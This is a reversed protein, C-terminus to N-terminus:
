VRWKKALTFAAGLSLAANVVIMISVINNISSTKELLTMPDRELYLTWRPTPAWDYVRLIKGNKIVIQDKTKVISPDVDSGIKTKDPHLIYKGKEDFAYLNGGSEPSQLEQSLKELDPTLIIAGAFTNGNFVPISLVVSPVNLITIFLNSVYPRLSTEVVQFYDRTRLNTSELISNQPYTGLVEGATDMFFVRRVQGSKEYIVKSALIASEENGALIIGPFDLRKTESDVLAEGETFITDVHHTIESLSDQMREAASLKLKDQYSQIAILGFVVALAVWFFSLAVIHFEKRELNVQNSNWWLLFCIFIGYIFAGFALDWIGRTTAGSAVFFALIANLAFIWNFYKSNEKGPLLLYGFPFTILGFWFIAFGIKNSLAFRSITSVTLIEPNVLTLVGMLGTAIFSFFIFEKKFTANECCNEYGRVVHTIFLVAFSALFLGLPYNRNVIAVISAFFLTIILVAHVVLNFKKSKEWYLSTLIALAGVAVLTLSFFANTLGSLLKGDTWFLNILGAGLIQIGVFFRFFVFDKRGTSVKKFEKDINNLANVIRRGSTQQEIVREVKETTSLFPELEEYPIKFRGKGIRKGKLKGEDLYKYVTNTSFGLIDAAEKVSYFRKM